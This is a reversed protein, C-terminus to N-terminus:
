GEYPEYEADGALGNFGSSGFQQASVKVFYPRKGDTISVRCNYVCERNDDTPLEVGNPTLALKVEGIRKKKSKDNEDNFVNGFEVNHGAIRFETDLGFPLHMGQPSTQVSYTANGGGRVSGDDNEVGKSIKRPMTLKSWVKNGAQDRETYQFSLTEPRTLAEPKADVKVFKKSDAKDNSTGNATSVAAIIDNLTIDGM